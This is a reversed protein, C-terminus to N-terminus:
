SCIEEGNMMQQKFQYSGMLLGFGLLLDKKKRSKERM